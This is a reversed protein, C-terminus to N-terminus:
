EHPCCEKQEFIMKKHNQEYFLRQGETSIMEVSGIKAFVGAPLTSKVASPALGHHNAFKKWDVFGDALLPPDTKATQRQRPKPIRSEIIPPEIPSSPLTYDPLPPTYRTKLEDPLPAKAELARMFISIARSPNVRAFDLYYSNDPFGSMPALFFHAIMTRGEDSVAQAYIRTIYRDPYRNVWADMIRRLIKYLLYPYDRSVVASNCFLTYGGDRNYSEVESLQISLEDRKGAMIDLIVQEPLPILSVYGLCKKRDSTFAGMAINPNKKQREQYVMPENFDIEYDTGDGYLEKDLELTALIDSPKIWDYILPDAGKPERKKRQQRDIRTQLCDFRSFLNGSRKIRGEKVYFYFMGRKIGIIKAGEQWTVYESSESENSRHNEM